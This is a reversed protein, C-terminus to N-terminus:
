QRLHRDFTDATQLIGGEVEVLYRFHVMGDQHVRFAPHLLALVPRGVIAAELFATTCVGVVASSHFLADFYAAKVDGDLPSAGWVVVPGRDGADFDRWEKAREPHPRILVNVGRLRADPSARLAALWTSVMDPEPPSPQPSMASAVYLVVPRAPDFGLARCFTQRDVSPQREFWQDYCQAGTVVLRDPPLAHMEVAERRQVENWVLVRDPVLHIPAKSSLHDWSMICAGVPINLSRAAKQHDLQPARPSTLSTLLVVDPQHARLFAVAQGSLPLLRELQMLVAALARRLGTRRLGPVGGLWRALRPARGSTRLRLKPSRDFAPDLFRVYELAHRLKRAAPFWVEDVVAPAPGYVIRPSAAALRGVLREGGLTEEEDAILHVDHGRRALELIASEFNRFNAFHLASFLIKLAKGAGARPGQQGLGDPGRPRTALPV